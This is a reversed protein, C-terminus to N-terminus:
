RGAGLRRWVPGHRGWGVRGEGVDRAGMRTAEEEGKSVRGPTDGRGGRVAAEAAGRGPTAWLRGGM